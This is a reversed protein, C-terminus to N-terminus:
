SKVENLYGKETLLILFRELSAQWFKWDHGGEWIEFCLNRTDKALHYFNQNNSLLSDSLGCSMYLFPLESQQRLLYYLNDCSESFKAVDGFILQYREPGWASSYQDTNQRSAAIDLDGSFSAAALYKEPQQLVGKFSGYGGMSLGAIIAKKTAFYFNQQLFHPLEQYIYTGYAQESLDCYYSMGAEPLVFVIQYKTAYSELPTRRLWKTYDDGGGHLLYCLTMKKQPRKPLILFFAQNRKLAPSDYCIKLIGM